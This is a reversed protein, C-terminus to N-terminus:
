TKIQFELESLEEAGFKERPRRVSDTADQWRRMSGVNESSVSAKLRLLHSFFDGGDAESGSVEQKENTVEIECQCM